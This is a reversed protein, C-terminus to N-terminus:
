RRVDTRHPLTTDANRLYLPKPLPWPRSPLPQVMARQAVAVASVGKLVAALRVSRGAAGIMALRPAAADGALVLDVSPLAALLAADSLLAPGLAPQGAPDLLLAYCEARKAELLLLVWAGDRECKSLTELTADFSTVTLLPKDWAIALGQAAALGIRVGTFSGPGNTVAICDLASWLLGAEAMAEQVMPVLRESQGRRMPEHRQARLVADGVVAVSCAAGAADLALINRM